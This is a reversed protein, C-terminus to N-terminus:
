TQTLESDLHARAHRGVASATRSPAPLDNHVAKGPRGSGTPRSTAAVRHDKNGADPNSHPGACRLPLTSTENGM